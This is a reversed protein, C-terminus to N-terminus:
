INNETKTLDVLLEGQKSLLLTAVIAIVIDLSSNLTLTFLGNLFSYYGMMTLAVAIGTYKLIATVVVYTGLLFLSDKTQKRNVVKFFITSCGIFVGSLIYGVLLLSYNHYNFFYCSISLALAVATGYIGHRYVAVIAVILTLSLSFYVDEEIGYRNNVLSTILEAIVAIVSLVILDIIRYKTKSSM